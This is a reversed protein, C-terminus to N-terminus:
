AVCFFFHLLSAVNNPNHSHTGNQSITQVEDILYTVQKPICETCVGFLQVKRPSKFYISGAQRATHPLLAQQAFDFTSHSKRLENSCPAYTPITLYDGELLIDKRMSFFITSHTEGEQLDDLLVTNPLEEPSSSLLSHCPIDSRPLINLSSRTSRLSCSPQVYHKALNDGFIRDQLSSVLSFINILYPNTIFSPRIM